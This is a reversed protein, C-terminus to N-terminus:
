GYKKVLLAGFPELIHIIASASGPHEAQVHDALLTLVELAVGLESLKPAGKSLAAMTKSLSDTLSALLAVRAEPAMNASTKIERIAEGHLELFDGLIQQVVGHGGTALTRAARLKDWDEPGGADRQRWGRVTSEAVGTREAALALPVGTLYADRVALRKAPTHAM